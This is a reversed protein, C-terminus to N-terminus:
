KLWQVEIRDGASVTYNDPAPNSTVLTVTTGSITYDFGAILKVGNRYVWVRSTNSPMNTVTYTTLGATATFIQEGSTILTSPSVRKLVGATDAVVISDSALTGSQLGKVALTNTASATITTAKALTGGLQVTDGSKSLGNSAQVLSSSSKRKLVGTSPDVTVISDGAAASQLGQVALTNTATTTVTTAKALTGGLQTTDGSKSLGNSAQVLSSSSKRKLVGTSPDVTVISDGAAASQLGQVALTNTATTTVTTAKALTGGLQVTDGSKSLGNNAQVLNSSSKRKLVGTSPDVTVISDGAAASQLGQVALTNTASATITTAKALTGGLQTTDGSKSLGNNAQVLSSSSKRKLVGTSPDVTVISDGAAASQLGQVALTNTASATITTAKALTGGLQTTDGSKSLGNNAQVLNSSSKRKLVGTSPDVTVISDGAAASQLGQVALTNTASATITTAKALTGGLQVTDGSKTLGNNAFLSMLDAVSMKKIQGTTNNVMMVSDSRSGSQLGTLQLFQTASTAITTTETLTGGLKVSDGSKTLGNKVNILVSTTSDLVWKITGKNDVVRTTAKQADAVAILGISIALTLIIKRM